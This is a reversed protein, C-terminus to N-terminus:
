ILNYNYHLSNNGTIMNFHELGLWFEGQLTGFGFKYDRWDRYFEESGDFRKQLVTWGGGETEMDCLVQISKGKPRIEYIGTM